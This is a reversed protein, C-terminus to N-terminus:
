RTFQRPSPVLEHDHDTNGTSRDALRQQPVLDHRAHLDPSRQEREPEWGTRGAASPRDPPPIDPHCNPSGTSDGGDGPRRPGEDPDGRHGLIATTVPQLITLVAGIAMLVASADNGYVVVGFGGVGVIVFMLTFWAALQRASMVFHGKGM